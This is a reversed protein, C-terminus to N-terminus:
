NGRHSHELPHDHKPNNCNGELQGQFIWKVNCVATGLVPLIDKKLNNVISLDGISLGRNNGVITNRLFLNKFVQTPGNCGFHYLVALSQGCDILKCVAHTSTGVGASYLSQLQQVS